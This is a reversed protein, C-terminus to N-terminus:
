GKWRGPPPPVTRALTLRTVGGLTVRDGTRSKELEACLADEWAQRQPEPLEAALRVVPGNLTRMWTLIGQGDPAEVIPVELEESTKVRFGAQELAADLRAPDAYRFVGPEDPGPLPPVDRFRALVERPLMVYPV